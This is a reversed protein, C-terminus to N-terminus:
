PVPMDMLGLEDIMMGLAQAAELSLSFDLISMQGPGIPKTCRVCVITDGPKAHPDDANDMVKRVEMSVTGGTSTTYTGQRYAPSCRLNPPVTHYPRVQTNSSENM